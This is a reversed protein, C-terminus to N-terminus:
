GSIQCVQQAAEVAFLETRALVPHTSAATDPFGVTGYQLRVRYRFVSSPPSPIRLHKRADAKLAGVLDRAQLLLSDPLSRQKGGNCTVTGGDSVLLTLTHGQGTRTLVFLDAPQIDLCGALGLAALAALAAPPGLGPRRRM